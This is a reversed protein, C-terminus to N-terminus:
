KEKEIMPFIASFDRGGQGDASLKSYIDFAHIGLKADTATAEIAEKALKLDKLMMDVAFGPQYDRNAPSSPVPGPVPCYSSLSWCQGSSTNAIDFFKQDPLGLRRALSFAESVGIMSIALLMNNCLKAAQGNGPDGAHIIKAGMISLYPQAADFATENGGVMFTLTGAQAGAVGGSVPADIMKLGAKTANESVARATEVDITSSDILLTDPAAHAILGNEGLYVERVHKGAPLMSIIVPCTAIMALDAAAKGGADVLAKTQSPSLDLGLVEHGAKVLNLAMPLGMNGLGIFGIQTM